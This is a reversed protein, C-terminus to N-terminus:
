LFHTFNFWRMFYDKIAANYELAHRYHLWCYYLWGIELCRENDHIVSKIYNKEHLYYKLYNKKM